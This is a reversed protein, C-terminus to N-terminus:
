YIFSTIELVTNMACFQTPFKLYPILVYHYFFTLAFTFIFASVFDRWATYAYFHDIKPVFSPVHFSLFLRGAVEAM